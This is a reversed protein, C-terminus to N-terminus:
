LCITRFLVLKIYNRLIELLLWEEKNDVSHVSASPTYGVVDNSTIEDIGDCAICSVCADQQIRKPLSSSERDQQERDRQKIADSDQLSSNGGPIPQIAVGSSVVSADIVNVNNEYSSRSAEDNRSMETISKRVHCRKNHKWLCQYSSLAKGCVTCWHTPERCPSRRNKVHRVLSSKTSFTRGCKDCAM